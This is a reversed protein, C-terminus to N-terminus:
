ELHLGLGEPDNDDLYRNVLRDWLDSRRLLAARKAPDPERQAETGYAQANGVMEAERAAMDEGMSDLKPDPAEFSMGSTEIAM